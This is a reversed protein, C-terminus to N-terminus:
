KMYIELISAKPLPFLELKKTIAPILVTDGIALDMVEDENFRMQFGGKTVMYIVFSDLEEYDKELPVDFELINTTFEREDVVPMTQNRAAQYDVKYNKEVRYDIADLADDIHLERTNGEDDKRDWDYVRYTTDASQQIEALLIGPGLSHVRGAPMYFADGAKVNEYNLLKTLSNDEISKRFGEKSTADKFGSILQANEDAQIIYWMESKGSELGRIQALEDDPHVQISLWDNADLFKVLIPFQNEYKEFVAEGVLEGMFIELVENLNNGELPGECVVSENGEIGSIAWLEGCQPLPTFDQFLKDKIKTGGWIKNKFIPHFKMPKLLEM